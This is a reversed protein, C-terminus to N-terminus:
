PKPAVILSAGPGRGRIHPQYLREVATGPAYYTGPTTARTLYQLKLPWRGDGTQWLQRFHWEVRDDRLESYRSRWWSWDGRAAEMVKAMETDSTELSTDVPELGAPLPDDVVVMRGSEEVWIKLNVMVYDGVKVKEGVPKGNRDTYSREIRFGEAKAALRATAPYAYHLFAGFYLPGKGTNHLALGYPGAGLEADALRTQEVKVGVKKGSLVERGNVSATVVPPQDLKKLVAAADALALLTQTVGQTTYYSEGNDLDILGRVILPVRADTPEVELLSRLVLATSRLDSDWAWWYRDQDAAAFRLAGNRTTGGALVDGLLADVVPTRKGERRYVARLLDTKAFLPLSARAEYLRSEHSPKARDLEALVRLAGALGSANQDWSSGTPDMRALRNELYRAAPEITGAPVAFGFKRATVLGDLAFATLYPDSGSGCGPYYDFGDDSCRYKPVLQVWENVWGEIKDTPISEFALEKALERVAILPMVKSTRQELCGYPYGVLQRIKEELSAVPLGSANLELAIPRAGDPLALNHSLKGPELVGAVSVSERPILRRVPLNLKVKDRHKGMKASFVIESTGEADLAELGFRFPVTEKAGVKATTSQPGHLRFLKADFTDLSVTVEGAAGSLQNVVVGASMRDGPRAFRPMAQRMMLTKAVKFETEGSGAQAGTTIAVAMLRYTTLTDPLEFTHSAKGHADTVLSGVWTAVPNFDERAEEAADAEGDGGGSGDEEGKIVPTIYQRRGLVHMRTDLAVVAYGRERFLAGILEPTKYGTLMLVGEDVAYLNVEASLPAGKADRTLVAAQVKQGPEFTPANTTVEVALTNATPKVKLNVSGLAFAPKDREPDPRLEGDPAVRGRVLTASVYVNPVWTAAVPIELVANSGIEVVKRWLIDEREVTVLALAQKFPSTVVITATEGAEVEPAEAVVGVQNRDGRSGYYDPDGTVWFWTSARVERGAKDKAQVRLRLSGGKKPTYQCRVLGASDTKGACVSQEEILERQYDWYMRGGPGQRKVSYWYEQYLSVNLPVGAMPEDTPSVAIADFSFLKDKEKLYGHPVLGVHFAAPHVRVTRRASVAQGSKDEVTASVVLDEVRHGSAAKDLKRAFQFSGNQDLTVNGEDVFESYSSREDYWSHYDYDSFRAGPFRKSQFSAWTRRLSWRLELGAAPAGFLYDANVRVQLRDGRVYAAKDTNVTVKMEARRFEAVQFSGGVRHDGLKVVLAYSGIRAAAPIQFQGAVTGFRSLELESSFVDEDEDDDYYAGGRRATVTVTGTPTALGGAIPKRLVARFFVTEGPRYVGRETYAMGLLADGGAAGRRGGAQFQSWVFAEDDDTSAAVFLGRDHLDPQEGARTLEASGFVAVGQADTTATALPEGLEAREQDVAYAQVKAGAVPAGDSLRAALVVLQAPSYRATLGIDTVNLLRLVPGSLARGQDDLPTSKLVALGGRGGLYPALPVEIEAWGDSDAALEQVTANPLSLEGSELAGPYRRGSGSEACVEEGAEEDWECDVGGFGYHYDDNLWWPLSTWSVQSALGESAIIRWADAFPLRAGEVKLKAARYVKEEHSPATQRELVNFMRQHAFRPNADGTKLTFTATEALKQAFVDTVGAKVKVTYTTYAGLAPTPEVRIMTPTPQGACRLSPNGPRVSIQEVVDECRVPTAFEFLLTAPPRCLECEPGRAVTLPGYTSAKLVQEAASGLPGAPITAIQLGAGIRVWLRTHKPWETKPSVIFRDAAVEDPFSLRTELPAAAGGALPEGDVRVLSRLREVKEPFRLTVLLHEGLDLNNVGREGGVPFGEGEEPLAARLLETARNRETVFEFRHDRKLVAKGDASRLGSSITVQYRQAPLVPALFTYSLSTPTPFGVEGAVPPDISVRVEPRKGAVADPDILPRDFRVEIWQPAASLEGSPSSHLVALPEGLHCAGAGLGATVVLVALRILRSRM